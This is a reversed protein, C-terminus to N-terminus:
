VVGNAVDADTRANSLKAPDGFGAGGATKVIVRDGCMLRTVVKSPIIKETGDACVIVSGRLRPQNRAPSGKVSTVM